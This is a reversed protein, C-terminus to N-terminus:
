ALVSLACAPRVTNTAMLREVDAFCVSNVPSATDPVACRYRMLADDAAPWLGTRGTAAPVCATEPEDNLTESGASLTVVISM